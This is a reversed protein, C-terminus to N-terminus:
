RNKHHRLGDLVSTIQSYFHHLHPLFHPAVHTYIHVSHPNFQFYVHLLPPTFTPSFIPHIHLPHSTPIFRSCHPLFHPSFTSYIPLLRPLCHPTSTSFQPLFHPTFTSHHLHPTIQSYAQLLISYILLLHPTLNSDIHFLHVNNQFYIYLATPTFPSYIRLLTPTFTSHVQLLVPTLPHLHPAFPVSGPHPHSYPTFHSYSSYLPHLDPIFGSYLPHLHPTFPTPRHNPAYTPTPAPICQSYIRILSPTFGSYLPTFASRLSGPTFSSHPPHLHPTFPTSGPHSTLPSHLPPPLPLPTYIRLLDPTFHAYIRILSSRSERWM